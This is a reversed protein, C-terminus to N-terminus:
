LCKLSVLTVDDKLLREDCFDYFDDIMAEILAQPSSEVKSEKLVKKMREYEYLEGDRNQSEPLADTYCVFMDGTDMSVSLAEYESEDFFGLAFGDGKLELVSGDKRNVLMAPPHGARAYHLTKTAPDFSAAFATIFSGDPMVPAILSNMERLLDHPMACKAANYALKAMSGIFAASLGHGTVDAILIRIIGEFEDVYYWDGGVEELPQYYASVEIKDSSPLKKPLLAEQIKRAEDLEKQFHSTLERLALNADSLSAADTDKGDFKRLRLETAISSVLVGAKYDAPMIKIRQYNRSNIEKVEERRDSIIILPTEESRSDSRLFDVQEVLDGQSDSNLVILDYHKKDLINLLSTEESEATVKYDMKVLFKLLKEGWNGILLLSEEVM